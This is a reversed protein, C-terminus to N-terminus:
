MALLAALARPDVRNPSGAGESFGHAAILHVILGPRDDVCPGGQQQDGL